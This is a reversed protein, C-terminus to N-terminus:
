IHKPVAIYGTEELSLTFILTNPARPIGAPFRKVQNMRGNNYQVGETITQSCGRSLTATLKPLSYFPSCPLLGPLKRTPAKM